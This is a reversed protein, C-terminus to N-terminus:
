ALPLWLPSFLSFIQDHCLTDQTHFTVTFSIIDVSVLYKFKLCVLWMYIAIVTLFFCATGTEEQVIISFLSSIFFSFVDHYLCNNQYLCYM